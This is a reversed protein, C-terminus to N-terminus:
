FVREFEPLHEDCPTIDTHLPITMGGLTMSDNGMQLTWFFRGPVTTVCCHKDPGFARREGASRFCERATDVLAREERTMDRTLM